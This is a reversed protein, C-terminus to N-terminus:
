DDADMIGHEKQIAADEKYVSSDVIMSLGPDEM